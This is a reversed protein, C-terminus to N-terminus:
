MLSLGGVLAKAMSATFHPKTRDFGTAYREFVIRDHRIVLLATTSRDKLAAWASELAAPDMGQSEPSATTWAWTKAAPPEEAGGAATAEPGLCAVLAVLQSRAVSRM